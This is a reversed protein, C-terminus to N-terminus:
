SAESAVVIVSISRGYVTGSLVDPRPDFEIGTTREFKWGVDGPAGPVECEFLVEEVTKVRLRMLIKGCVLRLVTDGVCIDSCDGRPVLLMNNM